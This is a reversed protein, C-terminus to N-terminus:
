QSWNKQLIELDKEDVVGDKNLDAAPNKPSVGWNFRLIGLDNTNVVGDNNLDGLTEEQPSTAEEKTDLSELLSFDEFSYDQGLTINPVPKELGTLVTVHSVGSPGGHVFIELKTGRKSYQCSDTLEETRGLNLPILWNGSARVLTSLTICNPIKLYILTGTAPTGDGNLIQGYAPDSVSSSSFPPATTATFPSDNQGFLKEASGIKFYYVTSPELNSVTVHHTYYSEMKTSVVDRDDLAIESLAPTKGFTIFGSVLSDSIWSVTFSNESINTIKIEKPVSAELAQGRLAKGERILLIGSILGSLLILFGLFTPIQRNWFSGEKSLKRRIIRTILYEGELEKPLPGSTKSFDEPM